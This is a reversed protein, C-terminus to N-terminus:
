GTTPFSSGAQEYQRYVEDVIGSAALLEATYTAESRAIVRGLNSKIVDLKRNAQQFQQLIVATTLAQVAMLPAVVPLSSAVPIFAAHAVVGNVGMVAGGVGRGLKMLTSPDATAMYLTSSLAASLGTAGSAAAAVAMSLVCQLSLANADEIYGGTALYGNRLSSVM